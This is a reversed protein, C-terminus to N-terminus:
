GSGRYEDFRLIEELAAANVKLLVGSNACLFRSNVQGPSDGLKNYKQENPAIYPVAQGFNNIAAQEKVAFYQQLPMTITKTKEIVAECNTQICDKASDAANSIASGGFAAVVAAIITFSGALVSMFIKNLKALKNKKM